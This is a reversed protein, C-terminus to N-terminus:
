NIKKYMCGIPEFPTDIVNPLYMYTGEETEYLFYRLVGYTLPEDNDTYTGSVSNIIIFNDTLEYNGFTSLNQLAADTITITKDTISLTYTYVSDGGPVTETLIHESVWTGVLKNHYELESTDVEPAVVIPQRECSITFLVMGAALFILFFNRKM